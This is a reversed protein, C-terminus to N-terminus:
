HEVIILEEAPPLLIMYSDDIIQTTEPDPVDLYEPGTGVRVVADASRYVSNNVFVTDVLVGSYYINKYVSYDHGNQGERDVIRTGLSLNPDEVVTEGAEAISNLVAFFSISRGPMNEKYGYLNVTVTGYEASSEIFIPYDTNNRFRFDIWTGALTADFGWPVYTVMMSHNRREVVPLEARLVANYLTSVVQCVGGGMGEALEGRVIITAVRYGNEETMVGFATYVSFIAGPALEWGNIKSTANMININRPDTAYGSYSTSFSGLLARPVGNYLDEALIEPYIEKITLYVTGSQKHSILEEVKAVSGAVDVKKGLTEETIVVEGNVRNSTANMPEADIAKAFEIVIREV